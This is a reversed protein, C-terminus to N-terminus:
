MLRDPSKASGHPDRSTILHSQGVIGINPSLLPSVLPGMKPILCDLPSGLAGRAWILCTLLSPTVITIGSLQLMFHQTTSTGGTGRRMLSLMGMDPVRVVGTLSGLGVLLSMMLSSKDSGVYPSMHVYYLPVHVM